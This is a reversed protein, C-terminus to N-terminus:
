RRHGFNSYRQSGTRGYQKMGQSFVWLMCVVLVLAAFPTVFGGWPRQDLDLLARCPYWAVFGAPLATTLGGILLAGIGDLPFPKLQDLMHVASSSVEEAARPAWFALSGWLFSFVLVVAVSAFLNLVLLALWSPTVPVGLLHIAWILLGMGTLLAGSGSVPTFGETLLAMWLPQPQLLTHDLQGRGLRRSIVLVNYNFFVGVIGMVLTAYGLLFIVQDRSWVGIGAFREALLLTASITAVNIIIDSTYWTVLLRINQTVM